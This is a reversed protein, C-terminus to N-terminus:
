GCWIKDIAGLAPPKGNGPFIKIQNKITKKPCEFYKEHEKTQNGPYGETNDSLSIEAHKLL